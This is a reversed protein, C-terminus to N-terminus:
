FMVAGMQKENSSLQKKKIMVAYIDLWKWSLTIFVLFYMYELFSAAILTYNGIEMDMENEQERKPILVSFVQHLSIWFSQFVLISGRCSLVLLTLTRGIFVRILRPLQGTQDTKATRM